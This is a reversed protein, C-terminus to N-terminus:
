VATIVPDYPFATVVQEGRGCHRVAARVRADIVGEAAVVVRRQHGTAISKITVIYRYNAHQMHKNIM